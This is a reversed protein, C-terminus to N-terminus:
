VNRLKEFCFCVSFYSVSLYSAILSNKFKSYEGSSFRNMGSFGQCPPGGCLLEVEGKRPLKKGAHMADDSDMVKKLLINCDETFVNSLPNNKKFANAAPECVEIAWCSESVGAQKFLVCFSGFLVM